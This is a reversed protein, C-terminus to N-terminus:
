KDTDWTPRQDLSALGTSRFFDTMLRNCKRIAQRQDAYSFLAIYEMLNSEYVRPNVDNASLVQPWLPLMWFHLHAASLKEEQILHVKDVGLSRRMARRTLRLVETLRNYLEDGVEDIAGIHSRLSVIYFGPVPWEADQRVLIEEDDYVPTIDRPLEHEHENMFCGRCTSADVVFSTGNLFRLERMKSSSLSM